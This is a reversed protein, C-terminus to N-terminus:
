HHYYIYIDISEPVVHDLVFLAGSAEHLSTADLESPVLNTATTSLIRLPPINVDISEPMLQTAVM